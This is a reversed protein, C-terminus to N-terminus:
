SIFIKYLNYEVNNFGHPKEKGNQKILFCEYDYIIPQTTLCMKTLFFSPTERNNVAPFKIYALSSSFKLM